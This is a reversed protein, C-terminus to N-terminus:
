KKLITQGLDEHPTPVAGGDNPLGGVFEVKLEYLGKLGDRGQALVQDIQQECDFYKGRLAKGKGAALYACVQGPLAPDARFMSHFKAWIPRMHPFREAVDDDIGFITTRPGGPHLAYIHINDDFGGIELELQMVATPRIIGAKAAGYAAAFPSTVTGARSAINVICGSQREM